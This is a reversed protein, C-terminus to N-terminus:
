CSRIKQNLCLPLNKVVKRFTARACNISGGERYRGWGMFFSQFFLSMYVFSRARAPSTYFGRKAFFICLSVQLVHALFSLNYITKFIKWVTRKDMKKLRVKKIQQNKMTELMATTAQVLCFLYDNELWVNVYTPWSERLRSIGTSLAALRHSLSPRTNKISCQSSSPQHPPPDKREEAM